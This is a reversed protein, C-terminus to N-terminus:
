LMEGDPICSVEWYLAIPVLHGGGCRAAPDRCPIGFSLRRHQWQAHMWDGSMLQGGSLRMRLWWRGKPARPKEAGSSTNQRVSRWRGTLADWDLIRDEESLMQSWRVGLESARHVFPQTLLLPQDMSAVEDTQIVRQSDKLVKDVFVHISATGGAIM